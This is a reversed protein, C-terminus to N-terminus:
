VIVKNNPMILGTGFQSNYANILDTDPTTTYLIASQNINIYNESSFMNYPVLGVQIKGQRDMGINVLVPNELKNSTDFKGIVLEGNLFKILKLM